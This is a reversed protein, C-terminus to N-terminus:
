CNESVLQKIVSCMTRYEKAARTKVKKYLEETLHLSLHHRDQKKKM